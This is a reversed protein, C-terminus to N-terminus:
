KNPNTHSKPTIRKPIKINTWGILDNFLFIRIVQGLEKINTIIILKFLDNVSPILKNGGNLEKSM